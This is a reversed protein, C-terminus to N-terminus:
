DNTYTEDYNSVDLSLVDDDGEKMSPEGDYYEVSINLDWKKNIEDIAKKRPEFRSFRSAITGGQMAQIEDSINREKKMMTLNSIGVLRLFESWLMNKHDDLKDTVYPAPNLACETDDLNIDKYTLIASEMGDVNNLLDKISKEKEETTKWFRPTKQQSVNIDITRSIQAFRESYQCIDLILPYKGYNDYMIVYEDSKLTRSYGNRGQVRITTPRGYVDLNGQRVWPLAIVGLVDDKFWAISGRDVLAKNIFAVDVYEPLNDFKFVNEALTRCQRLYMLYTQYNNLQSNILKKQM